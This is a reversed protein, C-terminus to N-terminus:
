AQAPAAFKFLRRLIGPQPSWPSAHTTFEALKVVVNKGAKVLADIEKKTDLIEFEPRVITINEGSVAREKYNKFAKGRFFMNKVVTRVQRKGEKTKVAPLSNNPEDGVKAVMGGDYITNVEKRILQARNHLLRRIQWWKENKIASLIKRDLEGLVKQKASTFHVAYDRIPTPDFPIVKTKGDVRNVLTLRSFANRIGEIYTDKHEEFDSPLVSIFSNISRYGRSKGPFQWRNVSFEQFRMKVAKMGYRLARSRNAPIAPSILVTNLKEQHEHLWEPGKHERVQEFTNALEDAGFSHAVNYFTDSEDAHRIFSEEMRGYRNRAPPNGFLGSDFVSTLKDGNIQVLQNKMSAIGRDTAGAGTYLDIAIIPKKAQEPSRQPAEVPM